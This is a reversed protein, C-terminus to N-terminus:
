DHPSHHTDLPELFTPKMLVNARANFCVGQLVDLNIVPFLFYWAENFQLDQLNGATPPFSPSLM